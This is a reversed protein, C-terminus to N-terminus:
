RSDPPSMRGVCGDIRHYVTKGNMRVDSRARSAPPKIIPVMQRNRSKPVPWGKRTQQRTSSTSASESFRKQRPDALAEVTAAYAPSHGERERPALLRVVVSMYLGPVGTEDATPIDPMSALAAALPEGAGQDAGRIQPLRWLAKCSSCTWRAPSLTTMAPGAGRYPIFQVKQKTLNRVACGHCQGGCKQNVFNIKGPNAKM